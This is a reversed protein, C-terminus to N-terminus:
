SVRPIIGILDLSNNIVINIALLLNLNELTYSNDETIIDYNLLYENTLSSLEYIYNAINYPKYKLTSTKVVERFDCLKNLIDYALDNNINNYKEVKSIKNPYTSLIEYIKKYTNEIFNYNNLSTNSLTINYRIENIDEKNNDINNLIDISRIELKSIDYELLKLVPRIISAYENNYCIDIVGDYYKNFKDIYYTLLILFNSYTGDNNVLVKDKTDKLITTKLYLKDEDFYTYGTKNLKNLVGDIIENNNINDICIYNNFNIRYADLHKKLKDIIISTSEKKFYEINEYQKRTNYLKYIYSAIEYSLTNSNAYNNICLTKYEEQVSLAISDIENQTDIIYLEKTVISNSNKLLRAFNDIYIISYFDEKSLNIISSLKISLNIKKNNCINNKGYNINEEIIEKLEQLLFHKDITLKMIGPYLIEINEIMDTKINNKIINAIEEPKKHLTKVLTIAVNTEYTYNNIDKTITFDEISVNLSTQISDKIIIKLKDKIRM